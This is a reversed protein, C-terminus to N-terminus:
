DTITFTETRMAQRDFFAHDTVVVEMTYTGPELATTDFSLHEPWVARGPHPGEREFSLTIANPEETIGVLGRLSGFFREIANRDIEDARITYDARFALRNEDDAQLNYVEYYLYLPQSRLFNRGPLPVITREYRQFRPIPGGEMIGASLLPDSISLGTPSFHRVRIAGKQVAVADGQLDSVQLAYHYGGPAIRVRFLDVLYWEGEEGEDGPIRTLVANMDETQRTIENWRADYLILGKRYRSRSGELEIEPLPVAFYLALDTGEQFYFFNAPQFDIPIRGPIPFAYSDSSLGVSLQGESFELIRPVDWAELRGVGPAFYELGRSTTPLRTFNCDSGLFQGGRQFNLGLERGPIEDRQYYWFGCEDRGVNGMEDPDGHRLYLAGRDDLPRDDLRIEIVPMGLDTGELSILKEKTIPKRWRYTERAVRIRRQQEAWRRNWDSIPLPDRVNWWGILFQRRSEVSWEEWRKNERETLLPEVDRYYPELDTASRAFSLGNFYYDAGREPEGMGALVVGSYYSLRALYSEDKVRRRFREIEDWAASFDGVDFLVDIRKLALSPVYERQIHDELIAATTRLDDADLYLRGWREFADLYSPDRRFVEHFAIRARDDADGGDLRLNIDALLYWGSVDDPQASLSRELSTRADFLRNDLALYAETLARYGPGRPYGERVAREFLGSAEWAEGAALAEQGRDYTQQGREQSWGTGTSLTVAVALAVPISTPPRIM